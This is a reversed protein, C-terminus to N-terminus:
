FLPSDGKEPRVSYGRDAEVLHMQATCDPCLIRDGVEDGEEVPIEASCWPCRVSGFPRSDLASVGPTIVVLLVAEAAGANKLTYSAGSPILLAGPADLAAATFGDVKVHGAIVQLVVDSRLHRREPFTRGSALRLVLTTAQADSQVVALPETSELATQLASSFM